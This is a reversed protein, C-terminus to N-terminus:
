RTTAVTLGALGAEALKGQFRKAAPIDRRQGPKAHATLFEHCRAAFAESDESAESSLKAGTGTGTGTSTDTM